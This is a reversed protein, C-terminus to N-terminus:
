WAASQDTAPLEFEVVNDSLLLNSSMDISSGDAMQGGFMQRAYQEYAKHVAVKFDYAQLLSEGGPAMSLELADIEFNDGERQVIRVVHYGCFASDSNFLAFPLRAALYRETGAIGQRDQVFASFRAKARGRAVGAAIEIEGVPQGSSAIRFFYTGAELLAIRDLPITVRAGRIGNSPPGFVVPM